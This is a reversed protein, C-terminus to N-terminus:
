AAERQQRCFGPAGARIGVVITDFKSLDGTSLDKEELMTVNLGMRRIAEPVADGTGMIYGVRVPATKLEFVKAAVEAPTYRRHTQIHPYSIEQMSLNYTKDGVAATAGIQHSGAKANAPVTVDFAFATKEGKQKLDFGAGAPSSSWGAPLNLRATGAIARPTNNTVSFVVRHKQARPSAPVILLNSELAVTVAPVVSLDRRIEGRIQDAYRYEVEKLVRVEEGGIELIVEATVLDKQFPM